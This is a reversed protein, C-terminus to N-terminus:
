HELLESVFLCFYVNQFVGRLVFLKMCLSYSEVVIDQACPLKKRYLITTFISDTYFAKALDCIYVKLLWNVTRGSLLDRSKIHMNQVGDGRTMPKLSRNEQCSRVVPNEEKLIQSEQWTDTLLAAYYATEEFSTNLGVYCM